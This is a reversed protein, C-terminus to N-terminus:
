WRRSVLVDSRSNRITGSDSIPLGHLVQESSYLVKSGPPVPESEISLEGPDVYAMGQRSRDSAGTRQEITKVEALALDVPVDLALELMLRLAEGADQHDEVILIRQHRTSPEAPISVKSMAAPRAITKCVSNM